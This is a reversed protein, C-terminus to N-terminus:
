VDLTVSPNEAQAPTDTRRLDASVEAALMPPATSLLGATYADAFGSSGGLTVGGAPQQWNVQQQVNGGLAMGPAANLLSPAAAADTACPGAAAAVDPADRTM